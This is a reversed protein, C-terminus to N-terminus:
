EVWIIHTADSYFVGIFPAL